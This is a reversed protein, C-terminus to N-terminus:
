RRLHGPIVLRELVEFLLETAIALAAAPLAGELILGADNLALGTVIPEGLGGAGIFAALTATGISIVAATRIGTLITPAALPLEVFRLQQGRTLGMASSVSRVVPDVSELAAVTNRLVPLVAYLFLAILAPRVGIGFLPIMFALLAISPITQLAGAVYLVPRGARRSRWAWVGLPVSLLVAAILAFFALFIHRLTRRLLRHVMSEEGPASSHTRSQIAGSDARASGAPFINQEDLFETAVDAFSRGDLLVAANMKRMRAEDIRGGLANLAARARANLDSHVLPVADYVPFYNRNDDLLKLHYRDIDGDTSYVDTVEIRDDAIARYALGHEIGRPTQPLAYTRALGPWGDPRELFEHSLGVRLTPHAALDGIRRIDLRNATKGSMAIAYTNNFGLPTLMELSASVRLTDNLRVLGPTTQMHLIARSITGTYEPYVDIEGTTLARYCVLTGGLGFRREVHLGARELVRSFVEALLYGETFNKSGVRIVPAPSTEPAVGSARSDGRASAPSATGAVLLVCAVCRVMVPSNM